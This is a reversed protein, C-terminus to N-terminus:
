ACRMTISKFIVIFLPLHLMGPTPQDGAPLGSPSLATSSTPAPGGTAMAVVQNEDRGEATAEEVEEQTEEDDTLWDPEGGIVLQERLWVCGFLATLAVLVIMFGQSFMFSCNAEQALYCCNQACRILLIKLSGFFITSYIVSIEAVFAVIVAFISFYQNYTSM